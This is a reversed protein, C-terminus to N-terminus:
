GRRFELYEVGGVSTSEGTPKFGFFQAFKIGAEFDRAVATHANVPLQPVMGMMTRLDMPRLNTTLAFWFWAPGALAPYQWGAIFKDGIQWAFDSEEVLNPAKAIEAASWETWPLDPLTSIPTM